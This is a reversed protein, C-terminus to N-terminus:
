VRWPVEADHLVLPYRLVLDYGAEIEAVHRAHVDALFRFLAADTADGARAHADVYADRLRREDDAAARLAGRLAVRRNPAAAPDPVHDSPPPLTLTAGPHLAAYRYRLLREQHQAERALLYFREKALSTECALALNHFTRGADMEQRIALVITELVSPGTAIM